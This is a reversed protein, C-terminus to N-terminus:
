PIFYLVILNTSLKSLTNNKRMKKYRKLLGTIETLTPKTKNLKRKYILYKAVPIFHNLVAFGENDNFVGFLIKILTFTEM